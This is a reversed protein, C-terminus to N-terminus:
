HCMPVEDMESWLRLDIPVDFNLGRMIFLVAFAALLVPMLKRLRRRWSLNVFQGSLATLLMLPITGVGFLAMYLSSQWLNSSTVAGAIAMYVLGCPLLGNLLGIYFLNTPGGKGLVRSLQTKVWTNFNRMWSIRLLRGELNISFLAAILFLVGLALSFYSQVGAFILGQGLLGIILGLLTYTLVRGLNYNLVSWVMGLRTSGSYPLALAIPGCMGVCHLSGVLGMTLATWLEM